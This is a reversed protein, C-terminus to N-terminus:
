IIGLEERKWNVTAELNGLHGSPHSPSQHFGEKVGGLTSGLACRLWTMIVLKPRNGGCCTATMMLVNLGKCGSRFVMFIRTRPRCIFWVYSLCVYQNNSAACLASTQCDILRTPKFERAFTSGCMAAHESECLKICDRFM